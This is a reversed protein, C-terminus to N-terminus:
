LEIKSIPKNLIHTKEMDHTDPTQLTSAESTPTKKYLKTFFEYFSMLDFKDLLPSSDTQQKLQKFKKWNLVHGDEIAKNLKDLFLYKKKKVLKSHKNREIYYTKRILNNGTDKSVRNALRNLNRKSIFCSRDFWRKHPLKKSKKTQKLSVEAAKQLCTILDNTISNNSETNLAYDTAIIDDLKSSLEPNNLAKKFEEPSTESDWKYRASMTFLEPLQFNPNFHNLTTLKLVLPCHDSYSNLDLVQLSKVSERVWSSAVFYDVTSSGNWKHCTTKGLSDGLTRGNLIKLQNNIVFDLFLQSHPAVSTKDCNNRAESIDAEYGIDNYIDFTSTSNYSSIFDPLTATRANVDGCLIIEGKQKLRRSLTNLADFTQNTYDPNKKVISSTSPSIYICIVYLDFELRFFHKDLKIAIIDDSEKFPVRSVGKRLNNNVLICVGGSRSSQRNSNYSVFGEIKVQSKTEQLCIISNHKTISLFDSIEFKNTLDGTSDQINWSMISLKQRENVSM